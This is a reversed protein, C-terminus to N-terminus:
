NAAFNCYKAFAPIFVYIGIAIAYLAAALVAFASLDKAKKILPSYEKTIQDALAEMATNLAEVIWVIIIASLLLIWEVAKVGLFAAMLIVLITAALHIRANPESKLM